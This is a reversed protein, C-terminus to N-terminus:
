YGLEKALQIAQLVDVRGFGYRHDQGVEGIEQVSSVILGCKEGRKTVPLSTNPSAV